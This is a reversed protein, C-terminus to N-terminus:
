KGITVFTQAMELMPFTRWTHLPSLAFAFLRHRSLKSWKGQVWGGAKGGVGRWGGGGVGRWDGGVCVERAEGVDRWDGRVCVERAEWVHRELRGRGM